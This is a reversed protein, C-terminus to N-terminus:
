EGPPPPLTLIEFGDATVRYTDEIRRGLDWYAPDVSAGQPIYVGPELTIVMDPALVEPTPDHVDIGVGHGVSHIWYEGFGAKAIVGRAADNLQRMTVGPKLIREAAGKAAAVVDLLKQQAPTCTGGIPFTRTMDSAYGEAMCGIDVVVFGKKLVADNRDYHPLTANAGSGVIPEFSPIPAGHRRFAALIADQIQRENVGPRALAPVQAMALATIGGARRMLAIEAEEKVM